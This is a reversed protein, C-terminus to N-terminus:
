WKKMERHKQQRRRVVFSRRNNSHFSALGAANGGGVRGEKAQAGSRKTRRIRGPRATEGRPRQGGMLGEAASLPDIRARLARTGKSKSSGMPGPSRVWLTHTTATRDQM